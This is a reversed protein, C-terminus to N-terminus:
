GKFMFWSYVDMWRAVHHGRGRRREESALSRRGEVFWLVVWADRQDKPKGLVGGYAVGLM